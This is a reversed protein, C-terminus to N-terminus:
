RCLPWELSPGECTGNGPAGCFAGRFLLAGLLFVVLNTAILGQQMQLPMPPLPGNVGHFFLTPRLFGFSM